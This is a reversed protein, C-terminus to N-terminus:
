DDKGYTFVFTFLVISFLFVGFYLCSFILWFYPFPETLFIKWLAIRLFLILLLSLGWLFLFSFLKSKKAKRERILFNSNEESLLFLPELSHFFSDKNDSYKEAADIFIGYYPHNFYDEFYRVQELFNLGDVGELLSTLTPDDLSCITEIFANSPSLDLIQRSFHFLFSNIEENRDSRKRYKKVMPYLLLFSLPLSVCFMGIAFFIDNSFFYGFVGLLLSSFILMTELRSRKLIQKKKITKNKM